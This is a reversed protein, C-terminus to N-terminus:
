ISHRRSPVNQEAPKQSVLALMNKYEQTLQKLSVIDKTKEDILQENQKQMFKMDYLEEKMESVKLELEQRVEEHRDIKENELKLRENEEELEKINNEFHSNVNHMRLYKVRYSRIKREIKTSTQRSDSLSVNVNELKTKYHKKQAVVTRLKKKLDELKTNKAKKEDNNKKLESIQNEKNYLENTMMTRESKIQIELKQVMEERESLMNELSLKQKEFNKQKDDRELVLERVHYILEDCENKPKKPPPVIEESDETDNSGCPFNGM